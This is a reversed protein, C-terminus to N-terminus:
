KKTRPELTVIKARGGKAENAIYMTGEPSFCIGEPQAFNQKELFQIHQIKGQPHVVVLLKGVSSLIYYNNDLPHIAIGSPSFDKIRNEMQKIKKKSYDKLTVHSKHWALLDEDHIQLIAQVNLEKEDLNFAFINKVDKLKSHRAINPSAKCALVLINSDSNYGLGEVDNTVSLPTKYIERFDSNIHKRHYIDGNSKLAFLEEGNVLEVGEYDGLFGFDNEAEIQCTKINYYFFKGQEDNVAVLQDNEFYSLGSIESLVRPLICESIYSDFQYPFAYKPISDQLTDRQVRLSSDSEIISKKEPKHFCSLLIASAFVFVIKFM